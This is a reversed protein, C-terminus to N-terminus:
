KKCLQIWREALLNPHFTYLVIIWQSLPWATLIKFFYAPSFAGAKWLQLNEPSTSHTHDANQLNIQEKDASHISVLHRISHKTRKATQHSGIWVNVYMNFLNIRSFFLLWKGWLTRITVQGNVVRIYIWFSPTPSKYTGCLNIAKRRWPARIM